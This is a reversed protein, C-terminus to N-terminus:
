ATTHHSDPQTPASDTQEDRKPIADFRSFIRIYNSYFAVLFGHGLKRITGNEIVKLSRSHNLSINLSVFCRAAERRCSLKKHNQYRRYFMATAALCSPRSLLRQPMVVRSALILSKNYTHRLNYLVQVHQKCCCQRLPNLRVCATTAPRCRMLNVAQGRHASAQRRRLCRKRNQTM